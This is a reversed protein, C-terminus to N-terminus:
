SHAGVSVATYYDVPAFDDTFLRHPSLNYHATNITNTRVEDIIAQDEPHASTLESFNPTKGKFGLYMINQTGTRSPGGVAVILSHPFVSTFTKIESLTFSPVSQGDLRGIINGVFVGDDTLSDRVMTFFERTTMHQPVSGVSYYADGFIADYHNTKGRLVARGDTVLNTMRRSDVIGFYRQSLAYLSPEIEAVDVQVKPLQNLMSQPISYAGGGIVLGHRAQPTLVRFLNAYQTYRYALDDGDLYRAASYSGDLRMTRTPRGYGSQDQVLIRSYQGDRLYVTGPSSFNALSYAILPSAAIVGIIVARNRRGIMLGTAGIVLLVSGIGAILSSLGVNPIFVFATSLSGVISGCTSWFSVGGAVQGLGLEPHDARRLVVAYPSLSGLLFSPVFFLLLSAVIPGYLLGINDRVVPALSFVGPSIFFGSIGALFIIVYFSRAGPHRDAWRGGLYYGLSLAALVVSIVGSVAFVTTGFLPALLRTAAVEIALVAAGTIFVLPLIPHRRPATIHPATM